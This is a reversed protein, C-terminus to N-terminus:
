IRQGKVLEMHCSKVRWSGDPQRQVKFRALWEHNKPGTLVVTQVADLAERELGAMLFRKAHMMPVMQRSLTGIFNNSDSFFDKTGPALYSFAQEADRSALAHIQGRVAAHIHGREVRSLGLANLSRVSVPDPARPQRLAVTVNRGPSTIAPDTLRATREAATALVVGTAAVITITALAALAKM